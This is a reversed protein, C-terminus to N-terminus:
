LTAELTRLPLGTILNQPKMRWLGDPGMASILYVPQGRVHDLMLKPEAFELRYLGVVRRRLAEDVEGTQWLMDGIRSGDSDLGVYWSLAVERLETLSEVAVRVALLHRVWRVIAEGLAALGRRGATLDMAMDFRDSREWYADANAEGLVDLNPALPLGLMSALPSATGVRALITEEDGALLSGEYLTLKQPRFFMEAARLVFADECGELANRLIVHALQNVFIAPFSRRSRVMDLYAGEVTVHTSLHDRWGVFLQWNERADADVIADIEDNAIAQRPAALLAHHLRREAVCADAPPRIEPRALYAKLFADTVAWRTGERELLHHGCSLWFDRMEGDRRAMLAM